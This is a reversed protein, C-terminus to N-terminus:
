AQGPLRNVSVAGALRKRTRRHPRPPAVHRTERFRRLADEDAM